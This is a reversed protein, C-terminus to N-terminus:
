TAANAHRLRMSTHPRLQKGLARRTNIIDSYQSKGSENKLALLLQAHQCLADDKEDLISKLILRGTRTSIRDIPNQFRTNGHM